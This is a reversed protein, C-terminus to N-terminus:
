YYCSLVADPRICDLPPPRDQYEGLRLVLADVDLSPQVDIQPRKKVELLERAPRVIVRVFQPLREAHESVLNQIGPVQL